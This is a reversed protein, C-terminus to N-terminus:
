DNKSEQKKTKVIIKKCVCCIQSESKEDYEGGCLVCKGDLKRVKALSRRLIEKANDWNGDLVCKHWSLDEAVNLWRKSFEKVAEKVVEIDDSELAKTRLVNLECFECNCKKEESM